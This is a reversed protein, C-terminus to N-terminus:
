QVAFALAWPSDNRINIREAAIGFLNAVVVLVALLLILAPLLRRARRAWFERLSVRDTGDVEHLMQRTILFGSLVFFTDVGLFGGSMHDAHFLLVAGVAFARLGDIAPLYTSRPAPTVTIAPRSM